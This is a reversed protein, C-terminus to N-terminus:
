LSLGGGLAAGRLEMLMSGVGSVRPQALGHYERVEHMPWLLIAVPPDGCGSGKLPFLLRLTGVGLARSPIESLLIAVPPDKSLTESIRSEMCSLM